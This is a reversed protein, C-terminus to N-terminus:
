LNGGKSQKILEYAQKIRHTNENAKKIEQESATRGNKTYIRDPHYKSLMKRYQKTITSLPDSPKTGLVQHASASSSPSSQQKHHQRHQQHHYQRYQFGRGLSAFIEQIAQQKRPSIHGDAQAIQIINQLLKNQETPNFMLHLRIQNLCQQLNFHPSKGQKFAQIAIASLNKDCRMKKMVNEAYRISQPSVTGDLKAIYGMISFMPQIMQKPWNTHRSRRHWSQFKTKELAEDLKSGLWYGVFLGFLGMRLNTM